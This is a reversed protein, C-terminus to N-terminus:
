DAGLASAYTSRVIDTDSMASEVQSVSIDAPIIVEGEDDWASDASDDHPEVEWVRESQWKLFNSRNEAILTLM